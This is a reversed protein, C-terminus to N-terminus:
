VRDYEAEFDDPHSFREVGSKDKTYYGPAYPKFRNVYVWDVSFAEQGEDAPVIWVEQEHGGEERPPRIEISKIKIASVQKHSQYLPLEPM